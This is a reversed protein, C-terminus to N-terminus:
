APVFALLAGNADAPAVVVSGGVRVGAKGVAREAAAPDSTAIVLGAGGREPLGALQIGPYRRRLQDSTLFVFDARNPGSPVVAAGDPETGAERDIMRAM